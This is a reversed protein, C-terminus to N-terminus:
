IEIKEGYQHIQRVIPLNSIFEEITFAHPEIITEKNNRLSMLQVETNFDNVTNPSLVIALDIDSDETQNGKCYSGFLWAESIPINETRLKNLYQKSINLADIKDM